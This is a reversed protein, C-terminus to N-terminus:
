LFLILQRYPIHYFEYRAEVTELTQKLGAVNGDLSVNSYDGLDSSVDQSALSALNLENGMSDVLRVSGNPRRSPTEHSDQVPSLDMEDGNEDFKRERGFSDVLTVARAAVSDIDESDSIDRQGQAANQSLLNTNTPVASTNDFRVKLISKRAQSFMPTGKWAGPPAPTQSFTANSPSDMATTNAKGRSPTFWGGPPKPTKTTPLIFSADTEVDSSPPEPLNAPGKVPSPTRSRHKASYSPQRIPTSM